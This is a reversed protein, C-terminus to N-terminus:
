AHLRFQAPLASRLMSGARPEAMTALCQGAPGATFWAALQRQPIHPVRLQLVAAACSELSYDKLKVEADLFSRLAWGQKGKSKETNWGATPNVQWRPLCWRPLCM